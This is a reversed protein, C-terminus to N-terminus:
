WSKRVWPCEMRSRHYTVEHLALGSFYSCTMEDGRFSRWYLLGMSNAHLFFIVSVAIVILGLFAVALAREM